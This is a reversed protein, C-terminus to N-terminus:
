NQSTIFKELPYQSKIFPSKIVIYSFYKEINLHQELLNEIISQYHV